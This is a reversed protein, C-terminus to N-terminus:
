NSNNIFDIVFAINTYLSPYTPNGCEFGGIVIGIQEGDVVLPSGVDGTCPGKGPTRFCLLSETVDFLESYEQKCVSREVEDVKTWRLRTTPLGGAIVAGWGTLIAERGGESTGFPALNIPKWLDRFIIAQSLILVSVDYDHSPPDYNPHKIIKAVLSMEGGFDPYISGYHVKWSPSNSYWETCHAATLIKMNGIISGGCVPFLEHILSAQYPAKSISAYEGGTVRVDPRADMACPIGWSLIGIQVNDAVTVLPGGNDGDCGGSTSPNTCINNNDIQYGFLLQQCQPLSLINFQAYRLINSFSPMNLFTKGWGTLTCMQGPLISAIGLAVTSTQPISLISSTTRVLAINDRFTTNDYMEHIIISQVSLHAGGMTLDNTGVVVYVSQPWKQYVCKASTLVTFPKIISGGCFHRHTQDRLSAQYRFQGPMAEM